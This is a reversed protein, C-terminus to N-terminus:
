SILFLHKQFLQPLEFTSISFFFLAVGCDKKELDAEMGSRLNTYDATYNLWIM